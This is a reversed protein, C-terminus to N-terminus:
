KMDHYKPLWVGLMDNKANMWFQKFLLHQQKKKKKKKKIPKPQHQEAVVQRQLQQPRLLVFSTMSSLLSENGNMPSPTTTTATTSLLMLSIFLLAITTSLIRRLAVKKKQYRQEQQNSLMTKVLTTQQDIEQTWEKTELLLQLQRKLLANEQLLEAHNSSSQVMTVEQLPLLLSQRSINHYNGELLPPPPLSHPSAPLASLSGSFTRTCGASSAADHTSISEDDWNL